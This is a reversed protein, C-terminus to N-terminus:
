AEEGTTPRPESPVVDPLTLVDLTLPAGDGALNNRVSTVFPDLPVVAEAGCFPCEILLTPRGDFTALWSYERGCAPANWCRVTIRKKDSM